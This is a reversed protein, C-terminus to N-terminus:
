FMKVTYEFAENNNRLLMFGDNDNDKLVLDGIKATTEFEPSDYLPVPMIKYDTGDVRLMVYDRYHYFTDIKGSIRADHFEKYKVARLSFLVMCLAIMVIFYFPKRMRLRANFMTVM